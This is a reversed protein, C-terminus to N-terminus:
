LIITDGVVGAVVPLVMTYTNPGDNNQEFRASYLNKTDVIDSIAKLIASNTAEQNDGQKALETTDIEPLKINDIKESITPLGEALDNYSEQLTRLKELEQQTQTM